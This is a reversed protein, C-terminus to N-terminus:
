AIIAFSSRWGAGVAAAQRGGPLPIQIPTTQTWV